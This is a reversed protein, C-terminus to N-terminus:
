APAAPWAVTMLPEACTVPQVSCFWDFLMQTALTPVPTFERWSYTLPASAGRAATGTGRESKVKVEVPSVM